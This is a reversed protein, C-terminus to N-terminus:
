SQDWSCLWGLPLFLGLPAPRSASTAYACRFGHLVWHGRCTSEHATLQRPRPVVSHSAPFIQTLVRLNATLLRLRPNTPLPPPPTDDSISSVAYFPPSFCPCLPVLLPFLPSHPLSPSLPPLPSHPISPGQSSGQLREEREGVAETFEPAVAQEGM